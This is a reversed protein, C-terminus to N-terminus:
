LAVFTVRSDAMGFNLLNNTFFFHRIQDVLGSLIQFVAECSEHAHIHERERNSDREFSIVHEILVTVLSVDCILDASPLHVKRMKDARLDFSVNFNL